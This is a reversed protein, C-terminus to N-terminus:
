ETVVKPKYISLGSQDSFLHLRSEDIYFHTLEGENVMHSSSAEVTIQNDGLRSTLQITSGLLELNEVKGKIVLPNTLLDPTIHIDCPRIGLTAKTGSQQGDIDGLLHLKQGAIDVHWGEEKTLEVPIFNMAPSGIFGAVFKNAPSHYIERPTGVQEVNGDRLIVIRDALTMAEVQDHTVYITTKKMKKHLTKIETRMSNRLKADLNSLPEDFLFVEPTRVMARGMAVRQRQGGSLAKPKRDLLPTLQLMDAVPRVKEEIQEKKLGALKLAFAINQYVTMHPYLAYSQFVMAIDREIPELENVVKNNILIEGGSIDELGALMRLTTSKGCGSPGLFVIFEGDNITLNFDKVTHVNGPYVKEIHKFEVSAM